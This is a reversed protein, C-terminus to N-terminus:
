LRGTAMDYIKRVAGEADDVGSLIITVLDEDRRIMVAPGTIVAEDGLGEYPDNIGPEHKALMGLASMAADAMGWEIKLEVRPLGGGPPEWVCGTRGVGNDANPQIAAGALATMEEQTILKCAQVDDAAVAPQAGPTSNDKMAAAEVSPAETNGCGALSGMALTFAPWFVSCFPSSRKM